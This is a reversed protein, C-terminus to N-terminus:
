LFLKNIEDKTKRSQRFLIVVLSIFFIIFAIVVFEMKCRKIKALSAVSIGFLGAKKDIKLLDPIGFHFFTDPHFFITHISVLEICDFM